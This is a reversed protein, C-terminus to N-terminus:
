AVGLMMNLVAANATKKQQEALGLTAKYAEQSAYFIDSIKKQVTLAPVPIEMERLSSAPIHQIVAGMSLSLLKKQGIVSNLYAVIVEGQIENKDPRIVIFNASAVVRKEAVERSVFGARMASGRVMLLVDGEQLIYREPNKASALVEQKMDETTLGGEFDLNKGMLLYVPVLGTATDVTFASKAAGPILQSVLGLKKMYSTNTM